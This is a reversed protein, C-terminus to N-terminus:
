PGLLVWLRPRDAPRPTGPGSVLVPTGDESALLLRVLRSPRRATRARVPVEFVARRCRGHEITVRGVSTALVAGLSAQPRRPLTRLGVTVTAARPGSPPRCLRVTWWAREVTRRETPVPLDVVLFRREDGGIRTAGRPARRLRGAPGAGPRARGVLWRLPAAARVSRFRLDEPPGHQPATAAGCAALLLGGLPVLRTLRRVM